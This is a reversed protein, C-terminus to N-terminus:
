SPKDCIESTEIDVHEITSSHAAKLVAVRVGEFVATSTCNERIIRRLRMPDRLYKNSEALSAM